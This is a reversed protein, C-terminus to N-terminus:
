LVRHKADGRQVLVARVQRASYDSDRFCVGSECDADVECAEWHHAGIDVPAADESVAAAVSRGHALLETAIEPFDRDLTHQLRGTLFAFAEILREVHPDAVEDEGNVPVRNVPVADNTLWNAPDEWAGDTGAVWALQAAPASLMSLGLLALSAFPLKALQNHKM